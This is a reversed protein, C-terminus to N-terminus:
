GARDLAPREVAGGHYGRATRRGHDVSALERGLRDVIRTLVTSTRQQYEAARALSARAVEPPRAPLSAVLTTREQALAVLEGIRGVEFDSVLDLEREALEALREYPAAESM